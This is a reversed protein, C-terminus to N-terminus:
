YTYDSVDFGSQKLYDSLKNHLSGRVIVFNKDPHKYSLQKIQNVMLEDRMNDVEHSSKLIRILTEEVSKNEYEVYKKIVECNNEEFVIITKKNKLFNMLQFSFDDHGESKGRFKKIITSFFTEKKKLFTELLLKELETKKRVYDEPSTKPNIGIPIPDIISNEIISIIDKYKLKNKRVITKFQDICNKFNKLGYKFKIDHAGYLMFINNVMKKVM